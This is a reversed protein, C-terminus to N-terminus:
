GVSAPEAMRVLAPRDVKGTSTRPLADHFGVSEPIMYAPLLGACYRRLAKMDPVDQGPRVVLFAKLTHEGEGADVAAVAAEAVAPHAALAEEVEGLNVRNGRIKVQADRRGVYRLAGDAGIEVLDGSRYVRDPFLDHGPHQIFRAATSQSDRWYGLAVTPGRACLEGIAGAGSVVAGSDDVVLVQMHSCPQGIPLPADDIIEGIEHFTVDNMETSGYINVMRVHPLKGRLERLTAPPFPEGAFFVLRLSDLAPDGAEFHRVMLKLVSPVSQWVTIANRTVFRVLDVGMFGIGQPVLFVCAGHALTTWVDFLSLDFHLPAHATV